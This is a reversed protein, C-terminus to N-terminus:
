KGPIQAGPFHERILEIVHREEEPRMLHRGIRRRVGDLVELWDELSPKAVLKWDDFRKARSHFVWRGGIREATAQREEGDATESKWTIGGKAM